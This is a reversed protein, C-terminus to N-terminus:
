EADNMDISNTQITVTVESQSFDDEDFSFAGDFKVFAGTSTTFGAHSASFLIQTHVKDFEYDAAFAIPFAAFLLLILLPKM